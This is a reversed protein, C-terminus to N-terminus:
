KRRRRAALGALALLSLTATTPEPVTVSISSIGVDNITFKSADLEWGTITVATTYTYDTPTSAYAGANATLTRVASLVTSKSTGDYSITFSTNTINTQGDDIYFKGTGDCGLAPTLWYGNAAETASLTLSVVPTTSETITEPTITWDTKEAWGKNGSTGVIAVFQTGTSAQTVLNLSTGTNLGTWSGNFTLTIAFSDGATYGAAVLQENLSDTMTGGFAIGALAMLAILTKKMQTQQNNITQLAPPLKLKAANGRVSSYGCVGRKQRHAFYIENRIRYVLKPM